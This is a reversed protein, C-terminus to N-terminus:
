VIEDHAIDLLAYVTPTTAIPLQEIIDLFFKGGAALSPLVVDLLYGKVVVM